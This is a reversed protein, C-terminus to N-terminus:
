VFGLNPNGCRAPRYRAQPFGHEDGTYQLQLHLSPNIIRPHYIIRGPHNLSKLVGPHPKWLTRPPISGPSWQKQERNTPTTYAHFSKQDPSPVKDEGPPAQEVFWLNPKGCRAPRYRGQSRSNCDGTQLQFTHFSKQDRSQVKDKWPEAPEVCGLNPNPM